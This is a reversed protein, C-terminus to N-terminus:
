KMEIFLTFLLLVEVKKTEKTSSRRRMLARAFKIAAVSVHYDVAGM